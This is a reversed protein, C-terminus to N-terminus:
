ASRLSPTLLALRIMNLAGQSARLKIADRPGHFRYERTETPRGQIALAVFVLGVPKEATAGDPGAIGTVSLGVAAGSRARIGEAMAAAVEGSVAGHREILAPDVGLWIHKASNSYCVAGGWFYASSGPVQTIRHGILGGTCSEATALSLHESSLLGGVVGEMTDADRGYVLPGLRAAMENLRDQIFLGVSRGAGLQRSKGTQRRPPVYTLSITVGLPSALTGLEMGDEQPVLDLIRAEIESEPLGFTLLTRRVIPERGARLRSRRLLLPAVSHEFMQQAEAPVGPLAIILSKACPVAFGPASGIPNTLVKAGRPILTQLQQTESMSRGRSRLWATLQRVAAAHRVLRRTTVQAVADRTCDDLTPGLGGTLVVLPSRRVAVRLTQIIDDRRDGVVSKYRVEVGMTSLRDTLMLSNTDLRGGLLLESGIAIIEATLFIAM